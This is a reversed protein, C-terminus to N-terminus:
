WVGPADPARGVAGGFTYWCSTRRSAECRSGGCGGSGLSSNQQGCWHKGAHSPAAPPAPRTKLLGSPKGNAAAMLVSWRPSEARQPNSICTWSGQGTVGPDLFPHLEARRRNGRALDTGNRARRERGNDTGNRSCPVASAGCRALARNTPPHPRRDASRGAHERPRRAEFPGGRTLDRARGSM